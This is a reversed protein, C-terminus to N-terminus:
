KLMPPIVVDSGERLLPHPNAFRENGAIAYELEYPDVDSPTVIPTTQKARKGPKFGGGGGGLSCPCCLHSIFQTLTCSCTM